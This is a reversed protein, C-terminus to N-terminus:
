VNINAKESETCSKQVTEMNCKVFLQEMDPPYDSSFELKTKTYPHIFWIKGCHLAQRQIFELSGGYLDDGALPHGSHSLHVRIQHTRGTLLQLTLLSHGCGICGMRNQALESDM